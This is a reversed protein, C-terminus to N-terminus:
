IDRQPDPFRWTLLAKKLNQHASFFFMLGPTRTLILVGPSYYTKLVKLLCRDAPNIIKEIDSSIDAPEVIVRLLM